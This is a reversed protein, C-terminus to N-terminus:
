PLVLQATTKYRGTQFQLRIYNIIFNIIFASFFETQWINASQKEFASQVETQLCLPLGCTPQLIYIM